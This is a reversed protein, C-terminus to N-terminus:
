RERLLREVKRREVESEPTAAGRKVWENWADASMQYWQRGETGAARMQSPTLSRDAAVAQRANGLSAYCFGLDRLVVLSPSTVKFENFFPVSAAAFRTAEAVHNTALEADSLRCYSRMLHVRDLPPNPGTKAMEQRISNAERVLRLREPAERGNVLVSALTEDREALERQAETRRGLGTTVEISKRYWAAAANPKTSFLSDGMKTYAYGLDFRAQMNTPDSAALEEAIAVAKRAYLQAKESEGANLTERGALPGVINNCLAYVDRKARQSPFRRVVDEAIAIAKEYSAIAEANSGLENLATGLRGCLVLLTRDHDENGTPVNGLVEIADRISRVAKDTELSNLQVYGLGSYNAALLRKRVPDDPKQRSFELAIPLCREYHDRAEKLNGSYSEIQGLQEYAEVVARTSEAGPLRSNAALATELAAHYGAIANGLNGRNAVFPSGEIDGVRGYAKSL